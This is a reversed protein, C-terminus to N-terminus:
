WNDPGALVVSGAGALEISPIRRPRWQSTSPFSLLGTPQHTSACILLLGPQQPQLPSLPQPWVGPGLHGTPGPLVLRALPQLLCLHPPLPLPAARRQGPEQWHREGASILWFGTPLPARSTYNAPDPQVPFPLWHAHPRSMILVSVKGEVLCPWFPKRHQLSSLALVPVIGLRQDTRSPQWRQVGKEEERDGEKIEM